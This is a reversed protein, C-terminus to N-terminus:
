QQRWTGRERWMPGVDAGITGCKTCVMHPWLSPMTLDGPLHDVITIREHRCQHCRVALSGVGNERHEAADDVRNM